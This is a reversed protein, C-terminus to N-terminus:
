HRNVKLVYAYECPLEDASLSPILVAVDDRVQRWKLTGKLGLMTIESKPNLKLGKVVFEGKPWWPVLVYLVNGKATFFAEVVAHAPTPKSTMGNIDYNIRWEQNYQVDPIRGPGWQANVRYPTTGYIAEGNVKLWDGIQQLREEQIVPIRGDATPGVNLLLNGGRSVIDVLMLVLERASCYNALTLERNFVWSYGVPRGDKDALRPRTLPRNEEWPHTVDKM